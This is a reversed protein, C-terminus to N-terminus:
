GIKDLIISLISDSLDAVVLGVSTVGVRDEAWPSDVVEGFPFFYQLYTGEKKLKLITHVM